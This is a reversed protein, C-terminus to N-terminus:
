RQLIREWDTEGAELARLFALVEEQVPSNRHAMRRLAPLAEARGAKVLATVAQGLGVEDRERELAVELASLVMGRFDAKSEGLREYACIRVEVAPDETHGIVGRVTGAGAEGMNISRLSASRVLPPAASAIALLEGNVAEAGAPNRITYEELAALASLRVRPSPEARSLDLLLRGVDGNQDWAGGLFALAVQRRDESATEQAMRLFSQVVEPENAVPPNEKLVGMLVDLVAVDNEVRIRELM